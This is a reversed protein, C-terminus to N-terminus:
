QLRVWVEPPNDLDPANWPWTLTLVSDDDSIELDDTTACWPLDITPFCNLLQGDPTIEWSFTPDRDGEAGDPEWVEHWEGTGDANFFYLSTGQSTEREWRGVLPSDSLDVIDQEDEIETAQPEGGEAEDNGTEEGENETIEPIEPTEAVEVVPPAPEVVPQDASSCGSALIAMVGAIAIGTIATKPIQRFNQNPRTMAVRRQRSHYTIVAAM